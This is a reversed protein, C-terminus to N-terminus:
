AFNREHDRGRWLLLRWVRNVISRAVNPRSKMTWGAAFDLRTANNKNLPNLFGPVGPQVLKTPKLFDGAPSSLTQRHEDRPQM